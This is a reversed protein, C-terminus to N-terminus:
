YYTIIKFATEFFVFGASFCVIAKSDFHHRVWSLGSVRFFQEAILSILLTDLVSSGGFFLYRM